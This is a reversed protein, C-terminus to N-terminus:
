VSHRRCTSGPEYRSIVTVPGEGPRQGPAGAVSFDGRHAFGAREYYARLRTNAAEVWSPEFHPPWQEIGREQLWAAAEDLVTLVDALQGPRAIM